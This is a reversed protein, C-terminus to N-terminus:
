ALPLSRGGSLPSDHLELRLPRFSAPVDYVLTGSVEIGPNLRPATLLQPSGAATAAYAVQYRNDADYLHQADAHLNQPERGINRVRMAVLCFQGQAHVVRSGAGVTRRGCSFRAVAFEFKGDRVPQLPGQARITGHWSGSGASGSGARISTSGTRTSGTRGGQDQDPSLAALIALVVILAAVALARGRAKGPPRPPPPEGWGPPGSGHLPPGGPGHPLRGHSRPATTPVTAPSGPPRTWVPASGPAPVQRGAPATAPAEQAWTRQLVQTVAAQTRGLDATVGEGLLEMLLGRASPRRAPDKAMAREVLRRPTPDLGDADPAEHVIRYALVEVPGTGFPLRGTGAYAVLGGWAFIDAAPTVPSGTFQEPAMWAPTGVVMGARTIGASADDLAHAIGFDIVRPGFYSLLVNGPKLDRHVLGDAHISALAAAVGVAFGELNSAALPGGTAVVRDLRVGDVYETVLYPVPGDLDADLVRATCFGAVRRAARVERRFRDLFAADGALEPRIVKVAVRAGAPGRALYVTGMGGSGLRGIVRYPGIETPGGWGPSSDVRGDAGSSADALRQESEVTIVWVPGLARCRLYGGFGGM